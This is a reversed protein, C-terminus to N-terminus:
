HMIPVCIDSMESLAHVCPSNATRLVESLQRAEAQARVQQALAASAARLEPIAKGAASLEAAHGVYWYGLKDPDAEVHFQLGLAASGFAFAQNLYNANAALRVAGDPLEFTDGHWHLVRAREQVLVGLPSAARTLTVPGWGIEKVAGLFVRAGLAKAMLQSGLCIGLTPGGRALRRELIAIEANLFPYATTEYVGIPGGLAILLDAQEILAETLDDIPAERYSIKWGMRALIPGLLGLDEFAVHRLAIASPRRCAM